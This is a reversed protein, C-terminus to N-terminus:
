EERMSITKFKHQLVHDIKSILDSDSRFLRNSHTAFDRVRHFGLHQLGRCIHGWESVTLYNDDQKASDQRLSFELVREMGESLHDDSFHLVVAMAYEIRTAPDISPTSLINDIKILHSSRELHAPLVSECVFNYALKPVIPAQDHGHLMCDLMAKYSLVEVSSEELTNVLELAEHYKEAQILFNLYVLPAKVRMYKLIEPRLETNNILAIANRCDEQTYDDSAIRQLAHDLMLHLDSLSYRSLIRAFDVRDKPYNADILVKILHEINSSLQATNYAIDEHGSSLLDTYLLRLFAEHPKSSRRTRIIEQVEEILSRIFLQEEQPATKPSKVFFAQLDELVFKDQHLWWDMKLDEVGFEKRHRRRAEQVKQIIRTLLHKLWNSNLRGQLYEGILQSLLEKVKEPHEYVKMSEVLDFQQLTHDNNREGEEQVLRLAEIANLCEVARLFEWKADPGLRNWLNNVQLLQAFKKLKELRQKIDFILFSDDQSGKAFSSSRDTYITRMLSLNATLASSLSRVIYCVEPDIHEPFPKSQVIIGSTKNKYFDHFSEQLLNEAEKSTMPKISKLFQGELQHGQPFYDPILSDQMISLNSVDRDNPASPKSTSYVGKSTFYCVGLAGGKIYIRSIGLISMRLAQVSFTDFGGKAQLLRASNEVQTSIFTDKNAKVIRVIPQADGIYDQIIVNELVHPDSSKNLYKLLKLRIQKTGDAQSEDLYIYVAFKSDKNQEIIEADLLREQGLDGWWSKRSTFTDGSNQITEINISGDKIITLNMHKDLILKAKLIDRKPRSFFSGLFGTPHLNYSSHKLNDSRIRHLALSSKNSISVFYHFGAQSIQNSLQIIGEVIEDYELSHMKKNLENQFLSIIIVDSRTTFVGAFKDDVTRIFVPKVTLLPRSRSIDLNDIYQKRFMGNVLQYVFVSHKLFMWGIGTTADMGVLYHDKIHDLSELNKVIEADGLICESLLVEPSIIANKPQDTTDM